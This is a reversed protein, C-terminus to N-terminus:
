STAGVAVARTLMFRSLLDARSPCLMEARLQSGTAVDLLIAHEFSIPAGKGMKSLAPAEIGTERSIRAQVGHGGRFYNYLAESAHQEAQVLAAPKIPRPNVIRPM